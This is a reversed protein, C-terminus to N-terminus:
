SSFERKKLRHFLGYGWFGGGSREWYGQKGDVTLKM